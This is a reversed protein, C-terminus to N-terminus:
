QKPEGPGGCHLMIPPNFMDGYSRHPTEWLLISISLHSPLHAAKNRQPYPSRLTALM